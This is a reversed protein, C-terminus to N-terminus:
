QCGRMWFQVFDTLGPQGVLKQLEHSTAHIAAPLRERGGAQHASQAVKDDFKGRHARAHRLTGVAHAKAQWLRRAPDTSASTLQALHFTRVDAGRQISTALDPQQKCTVEFVDDLFHAVCTWLEVGQYLGLGSAVVDKEYSKVVTALSELRGAKETFLAMLEMRRSELGMRERMADLESVLEDAGIRHRPSEHLMRKKVFGLFESCSADALEELTAGLAFIDSKVSWVPSAGRLEPALHSLGSQPRSRSSAQAVRALGFDILKPIGGPSLIINSAKIDRHWVEHAELVQLAKALGFALGVLAPQSIEKKRDSLDFGEVWESVFVGRSAEGAAFGWQHVHQIYAYGPLGRRTRKMADLALCANLFERRQRDEDLRVVRWAELRKESQVQFIDAQGGSNSPTQDIAAPLAIEPLLARELSNKEARTALPAPRAALAALYNRQVPSRFGDEGDLVSRRRLDDLRQDLFDEVFRGQDAVDRCWRDLLELAAKKRVAGGEAHTTTAAAWALAVPYGPHPKWITRDDSENLADRLYTGLESGVSSLANNLLKTEARLVDVTDFWTRNEENLKEVIEYLLTLLIWFNMSERALERRAAASSQLRPDLRRLFEELEDPKIEDQEWSRFMAAAQGKLQEVLHLQGVLLLQITAHGTKERGWDSEFLHKVREARARGEAGAFFAQAEDVVMYIATFGSEWAKRRASDLNASVPVADDWDLRVNVDLREAVRKLFVQFIHADVTAVISRMFLVSTKTDAANFHEYLATLLTTKGFRRPAAIRLSRRGQELMTRIEEYKHQIGLPHQRMAASNTTTSFPLTIREFSFRVNATLEPSQLSIGTSADTAVLGFSLTSAPGSPRGLPIDSLRLPAVWRGKHVEVWDARSVKIRRNRLMEHWDAARGDLHKTHITLAADFDVPESSSIAFPVDVTWLGRSQDRERAFLEPLRPASGRSLTHGVSVTVGAASAAPARRPALTAELHEVLVLLTGLEPATALVPAVKDFVMRLEELRRHLAPLNPCESLKARVDDALQPARKALAETEAAALELSDAIDNPALTSESALAAAWAGLRTAAKEIRQCSGARELVGKLAAVADLADLPRAVGLADLETFRPSELLMELGKEVTPRYTPSAVCMALAEARALERGLVLHFFWDPLLLLKSSRAVQLSADIDSWSEISRIWATRDQLSPSDALLELVRQVSKTFQKEGDIDLESLTGQAATLLPKSRRLAILRATATPATAADELSEQLAELNEWSAESLAALANEAGLNELRELAEGDLVPHHVLEKRKVSESLENSPQLRENESETISSKPPLPNAPTPPSAAAPAFAVAPESRVDRAANSPNSAISLAPPPPSETKQADVVLALVADPFASELAAREDSKLEAPRVAEFLMAEVRRSSLELDNRKVEFKEIILRARDLVENGSIAPPFVQPVLPRRTHLANPLAIPKLTPLTVRGIVVAPSTTRQLPVYTKVVPPQKPPDIVRREPEREFLRVDDAPGSKSKWWVLEMAVNRRVAWRARNLPLVSMVILTDRRNPSVAVEYYMTAGLIGARADQVPPQAAIVQVTGEPCLDSLLRNQWDAGPFASKGFVEATSSLKLWHKPM